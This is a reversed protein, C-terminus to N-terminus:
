VGQVTAFVNTNPSSQSYRSLVADPPKGSVPRKLWAVVVNSVANIVVSAFYLNPHQALSAVSTPEFLIIV